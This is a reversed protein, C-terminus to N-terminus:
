EVDLGEWFEDYDFKTAKAEKEIEAEFLEKELAVLYENLAEDVMKQLPKHTLASLEDLRSLVENNLTITINNNM